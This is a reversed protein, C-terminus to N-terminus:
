RRRRKSKKPSSDTESARPRGIVVVRKQATLYRSAAQRIDVESIVGIASLGLDVSKADRDLVVARAIAQAREELSDLQRLIRSRMTSRAVEIELGTTEGRSVARLERDIASVAHTATQGPKLAVFIEFAGPGITRQAGAEVATAISPILSRGLRSEPGHALLEAILELKVHDPDKAPPIPFAVLVKATESPLDVTASGSGVSSTPATSSPTAGAAYARRIASLLKTRDVDGSVALVVRAPSLMIARAKTVSAPTADEAAGYLKAAAAGDLLNREQVGLGAETSASQIQAKVEDAGPAGAKLREAEVAVLQELPDPAGEPMGSLVPITAKVFAVDELAGAGVIAGLQELKQLADTGAKPRLSSLVCEVARPDLRTHGDLSLWTQYTISRAERDRVFALTPGGGLRYREVLLGLVPAADDITWTPGPGAANAERTAKEMETRIQTTSGTPLPKLTVVTAGKCAGLSIALLAIARKGSPVGLSTAGYM